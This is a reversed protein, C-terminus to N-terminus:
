SRGGQKVVRGVIGLVLLGAAVAHVWRDPLVAKLDAPFAAWAAEIAGAVTMAQVSFWTWAKRWDDVLKM